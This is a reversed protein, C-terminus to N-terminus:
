SAGAEGDAAGRVAALAARCIAEPLPGVASGGDEDDFGFSVGVIFGEGRADEMDASISGAGTMEVMTEFLCMAEAVDTSYPPVPPVCRGLMGRSTGGPSKAITKGCRTCRYILNWATDADRPEMQCHLKEGAPLKFVAAHVQEDLTLATRQVTM